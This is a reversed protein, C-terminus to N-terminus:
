ENQKIKVKFCNRNLPVPIDWAGKEWEGEITADQMAIISPFLCQYLGCPKNLNKLNALM